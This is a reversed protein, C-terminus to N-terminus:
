RVATDQGKLCGAVWCRPSGPAVALAEVSQQTVRGEWCCPKTWQLCGLNVTEVVPKGCLVFCAHESGDCGAGQFLGKKPTSVACKRGQM